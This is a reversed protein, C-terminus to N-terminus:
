TELPVYQVTVTIAASDTTSLNVITVYITATQPSDSNAGMRNQWSWQLPNSDLIVDSIMSPVIEPPVPADPARLLDFGQTAAAGYLRVDCNTNALLQLLQFSKALSITGTFIGGPPLIGTTVSASKAALSTAAAAASATSTVSTAAVATAAGSMLQSPLPLLRYQPTKGGLYYQRLNDPNSSLPPMPCRMMPSFNPELDTQPSPVASSQPARESAVYGSLDAKEMEAISPM